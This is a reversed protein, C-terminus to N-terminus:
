AMIVFNTSAPPTDPQLQFSPLPAPLLALRTNPTLNKMRGNDRTEAAPNTIKPM